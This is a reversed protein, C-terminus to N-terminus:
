IGRIPRRQYLSPRLFPQAPTGPHHVIPGFYEGEDSRLSYRGHARIIHPPSGYEVTHWHPASITILGRLEGPYSTGISGVLEGSDIPCGARADDAIDETIRRVGRGEAAKFYSKYGHHVRLHAYTGAM